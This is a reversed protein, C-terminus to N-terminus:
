YCVINYFSARALATLHLRQNPPDQGRVKSEPWHGVAESLLVRLQWIFLANGRIQGRHSEGTIRYCGKLPIPAFVFAFEYVGDTALDDLVLNEMLYIGNRTLMLQHVPFSQNPNGSPVAEVGWNDSGVMAIKKDSLWQGAEMGIGPEGSNFTENDVKWLKNHGTRILVVDGESIAVGQKELTGEIDERTIVYGVQLMEIGKYGCIDVLVGRTFFVGAHEVGLKRLGYARSFESLKFGNYFIDENGVRIGVHGLGDFQTGIQGIEGSFMEVQYVFQNEGSPGGTPSGVITLSCHRNGIMPMDSEYVQGLKYVKGETILRAAQIVKSPTIRNTAGQQDEPGWVSPWWKSKAPTEQSWLTVSLFFTTIFLIKAKM